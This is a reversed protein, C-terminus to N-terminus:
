RTFVSIGALLGFVNASVGRTETFYTYRAEYRAAIRDTIGLRVGIGAGLTARSTSNGSTVTSHQWGLAPRVFWRPGKPDHSLETLLGVDGALYSSSRGGASAYTFSAAVEPEFPGDTPFAVRVSSIPLLLSNSASVIGGPLHSESHQFAADGGLELGRNRQAMGASATWVLLGTAVASSRIFRSRM